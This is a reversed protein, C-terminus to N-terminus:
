GAHRVSALPRIRMMHWGTVNRVTTGSKLRVSRAPGGYPHVHGHLLLGPRLAGALGHLAIFGWHPPDDGDGAGRPPAHTILLDVDGGRRLRHWRARVRLAMARRAQERDTYQNPGACYRRCGGLGAIRLGAVEVVRGDANIAGDPWPARVPIGARLTLGARSTRYGSLDPDHNGPVFVLPVDLANMLAGLYDFPLDGCAVILDASGAVGPDAALVEDPEDSVALVFIGGSGRAPGNDGRM